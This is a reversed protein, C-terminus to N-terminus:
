QKVFTGCGQNTFDQGVSLTVSPFGGTPIDNEIIDSGNTGTKTIKWYCESSIATSTRYSGPAIDKGVTWTGEGVSNAAVQKEATGVARERAAVARERQDLQAKRQAASSDAAKASAQVSSAVAQASEDAAQAQSQAAEASAQATSIQSTANALQRQLARYETTSKPDTSAAVAGIGAGVALCAAVIATPVVWRRSRAAAPPRVTAAAGPAPTDSTVDDTVDTM